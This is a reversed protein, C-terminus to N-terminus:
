ALSKMSYEWQAPIGSNVDAVSPFSWRITVPYRGYAKSGARDRAALLALHAFIGQIGIRGPLTIHIKPTGDFSQRLDMTLPRIYRGCMKLTIVTEMMGAVQIAGSSLLLACGATATM